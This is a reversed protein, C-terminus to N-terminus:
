RKKLKWPLFTILFIFSFMVHWPDNVVRQFSHYKREFMRWNVVFILNSVVESFLAKGRLIRYKWATSCQEQRARNIIVASNKEIPFSFMGWCIDRLCWLQICWWICCETILIYIFSVAIFLVSSLKSVECKSQMQKEFKEVSFWKVLYATWNEKARNGLEWNEWNKCNPSPSRLFYRTIISQFRKKGFTSICLCFSLCKFVDQWELSIYQWWCRM